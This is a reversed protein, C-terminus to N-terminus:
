VNISLGRSLYLMPQAGKRDIFGRALALPNDVTCACLGHEIKSTGHYGTYVKIMVYYRTSFIPYRLITTCTNNDCRKLQCLIIVEPTFNINSIYHCVLRVNASM